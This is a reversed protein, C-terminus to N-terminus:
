IDSIDNIKRRTVPSKSLKPANGDIEGVEM